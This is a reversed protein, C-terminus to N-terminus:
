FPYNKMYQQSDLSKSAERSYATKSFDGLCLPYPLPKVINDVRIETRSKEPSVTRYVGSVKLFLVVPLLKINM